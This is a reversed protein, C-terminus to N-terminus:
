CEIRTSRQFVTDRVGHQNMLATGKKLVLALDSTLTRPIVESIIM